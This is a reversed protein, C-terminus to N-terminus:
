LYASYKESITKNVKLVNEKQSIRFNLLATKVESDHLAIISAAQIAANKSANIGVTAVPLGPPMQVTSLLADVGDLVSSSVPVGIVPKITGSAIVGALAASMGAFAIIVECEPNADLEEVFNSLEMHTRHASFVNVSCSIGLSELMQIAPIAKEEDSGSGMIIAVKM